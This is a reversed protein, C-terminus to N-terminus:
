PKPAAAVKSLIAPLYGEVQHVMQVYVDMPKGYADAIEADTGTAYEALTFVKDKADPFAAIVAAKHKATMTLIIDAHKVDQATIQTAIHKSVTIGRKKLLTQVNAEPPVVFPDVNVARSIVAIHLHQKAILKDALAEATVSRGTNGTDVFALKKPEEAQAATALAVVLAMGLAIKKVM